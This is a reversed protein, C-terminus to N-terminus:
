IWNSYNDVALIVFRKKGKETTLPGLFDIQLEELPFKAKDLKINETSPIM